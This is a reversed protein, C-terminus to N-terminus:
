PRNCILLREGTAFLVKAKKEESVEIVVGYGFSQHNVLDGTSLSVSTDYDLATEMDRSLLLRNLLDKPSKASSAKSRGTKKQAPSKKKKRAALIAAKTKARPEKFKGKAGCESCRVSRVQAGSAEIVVHMADARCKSCYGNISSGPVYPM